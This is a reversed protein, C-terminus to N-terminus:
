CGMDTSLLAELLANNDASNAVCVRQWGYQRAQDAIRKSVVMLRRSFWWEKTNEAILSNLQTLIQGSTVVIDTININMWQQNFETKDYFVPHRSYCECYEVQAGRSRLTSALLERGGNGRLLLAQKGELFQLEPLSLLAESTEGCEPWRIPLGTMEQFYRGTSRGIGYYFLKDSWNRGTQQLVLNAYWVANKSLLFVLDHKDLQNLKSSLLTLEASPEISILPLAYAEHGRTNLMSALEIGAPEPRTVLVKM